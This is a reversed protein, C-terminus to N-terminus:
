KHYKEGHLITFCRYLQELLIIRVMDHQFTLKSLSLVYDSKQIITPDLGWASGVILILKQVGRNQWLQFEKALEASSLHLGKRDVAVIFGDLMKCASIRDAEKKLIQIIGEKGSESKIHCMEIQCYRKLRKLYIAEGDLLYSTKNEGVCIITIKM